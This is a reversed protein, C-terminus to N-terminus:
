ADVREREREEGQRSEVNNLPTRLRGASIEDHRPMLHRHFKERVANATRVSFARWRVNRYGVRSEKRRSEKATELPSLLEGGDRGFCIERRARSLKEGEREGEEKGM